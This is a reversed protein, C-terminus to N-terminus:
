SHMGVREWEEAKEMWGTVVNAGYVCWHALWRAHYDMGLMVGVAEVWDFTPDTNRLHGHLYALFTDTDTM